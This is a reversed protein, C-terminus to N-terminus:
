NMRWMVIRIIRKLIYILDQEVENLILDLEKCPFAPMQWGRQSEVERSRGVEQGLWRFAKRRLTGKESCCEEPPTSSLAEVPKGSEFTGKKRSQM